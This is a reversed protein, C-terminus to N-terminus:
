STKATIDTRIAVFQYPKGIKDLFNIMWIGIGMSFIGGIFLLRKKHESSTSLYFLDLVAYSSMMTLVISLIILILSSTVGM